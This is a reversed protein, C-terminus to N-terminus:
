NLTLPFHLLGVEMRYTSPSFYWIFRLLFFIFLLNEEDVNVVETMWVGTTTRGRTSCINLDCGERAASNRQEGGVVVWSELVLPFLLSLASRQPYSDEFLHCELPRMQCYLTAATLLPQRSIHHSVCKPTSDLTIAVVQGSSLSQRHLVVSWLVTESM